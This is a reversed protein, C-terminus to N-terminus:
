ASHGRKLEAALRVMSLPAHGQAACWNEYAARLDKAALSVGDVALLCEEIFRPIHSHLAGLGGACRGKQSTPSPKPLGADPALLRMPPVNSPPNSIEGPRPAQTMGGGYGVDAPSLYPLNTEPQQPLPQAISPLNFVKRAASAEESGGGAVVAPLSLKPLTEDSPPNSTEKGANPRVRGAGPVVAPPSPIPLGAEPCWPLSRATM